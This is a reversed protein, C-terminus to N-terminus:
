RRHIRKSSMSSGSRHPLSEVPVPAHSPAGAAQTVGSDARATTDRSGVIAGTLTYSSGPGGSNQRISIWLPKTAREAYMAISGDGQRGDSQLTWSNLVLFQRFWSAVSDPADPSVLAIQGVSDGSSMSVVQSRPYVLVGQLSQTVTPISVRATRDCGWLAAAALAVLALRRFM